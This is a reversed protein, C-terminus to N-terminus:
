FLTLQVPEAYPEFVPEPEIAPMAPQPTPVRQIANEPEDFLHGHVSKFLRATITWASEFRELSLTNGRVVHASIGRWTLQLYCMYFPLSAVDIAEVLMHLTRDYGMYELQDAMALVMGGAGCSPEQVTIYGKHEIVPEIGDLNMRAIMNSVNYPTFFQGNRADLVALESSVEGLFDCGGMEVTKWAIALLDPYARITDKDQYGNVIKMYRAELQEARETTPAMLKAHACYAMEMLDRFKESVSRSRDLRELM